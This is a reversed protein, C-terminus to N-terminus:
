EIEKKMSMEERVKEEEEEEEEEEGCLKQNLQCCCYSFSLVTSTNNSPSVPLSPHAPTYQYIKFDKQRM